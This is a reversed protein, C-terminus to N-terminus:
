AFLLDTWLSSIAYTLYKKNERWVSHIDISLELFLPVALQKTKPRNHLQARQSDKTYWVVEWFFWFQKSSPIKNVSNCSASRTLSSDSLKNLIQIKQVCCTRPRVRSLKGICFWLHYYYSKKNQNCNLGQVNWLSWYVIGKESLIIYMLTWTKIKTQYQFVNLVLCYLDFGHHFNILKMASTANRLPLLTLESPGARHLPKMKNWVRWGTRQRLKLDDRIEWKIKVDTASTENANNAKNRKVMTSHTLCYRGAFCSLQLLHDCKM